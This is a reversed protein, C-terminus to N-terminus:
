QLNPLYNPLNQKLEFAQSSRSLPKLEDLSYCLAGNKSSCEIDDINSYAINHTIVEIYIYRYICVYINTYIYIYMIGKKKNLLDNSELNRGLKGPERSRDGVQRNNTVGLLSRGHPEDLLSVFWWIEEHKELSWKTFVLSVGHSFHWPVPFSM